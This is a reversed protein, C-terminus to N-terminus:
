EDDIVGDALDAYIDPSRRALFVVSQTGAKGVSGPMVMNLMEEPSLIFVSAAYQLLEETTLDTWVNDLLIDLMQPLEDIGRAQIMVMAAKMILGHNASRAFDGGPLTKRIRALRLAATPGLKQSGSPYDQWGKIGSSISRPLNIRLGGLDGILGEFGVFGTVVYGDIDLETLNTMTELMVEPGRNAMVNTFKSGGAPGQVWSDRPFGVISGEARSPDVGVLHISDARLKQQNQGARADSGLVLLLKPGEGLWPSLGPLIAGVLRWPKDDKVLLLTDEGVRAVAVSDGTNLQHVEGKVIAARPVDHEAGAFSELLSDPVPPEPNRDDALWNYFGELADMARPPLDGALAVSQPTETTTTSSTTTPAATTTTPAPTTTTTSTSSTTEAVSAATCATALLSLAILALLQRRIGM